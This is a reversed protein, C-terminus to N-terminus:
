LSGPLYITLQGLGSVCLVWSKRERFCGGVKTPSHHILLLQKSQFPDTQNLTHDRKDREEMFSKRSNTYLSEVRWPTQKYAFPTVQTAEHCGCTHLNVSLTLYLSHPSTQQSYKVSALNLTHVQLTCTCTDTHMYMCTHHM